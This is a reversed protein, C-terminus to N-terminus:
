CDLMESICPAALCPVRSQQCRLRFRFRATAGVKAAVVRDVIVEWRANFGDIPKVPTIAAVDAGEPAVRDAAGSVGSMRPTCGINISLVDFRVPPRGGKLLVYGDKVGCAEAHIM